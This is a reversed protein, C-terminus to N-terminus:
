DPSTVGDMEARASTSLRGISGIDGEHEGEGDAMGVGPQDQPPDLRALESAAQPPDNALSKM